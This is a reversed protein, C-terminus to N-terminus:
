RAAEDQQRSAELLLETVSATITREECGVQPDFRFRGQDSTVIAVAADFGLAKETEAHVPYGAEMWIRGQGDRSSLELLGSKRGMELLQLLADPPIEALDGQFAEGSQPMREAIMTKAASPEDDLMGVDGDVQCFIIISSGIEIKDGASLAASGEVAQGNLFTGNTSGLDRLRFSDGEYFVEAHRRSVDDKRLVLECSSHRGIAAPTGESLRLPLHPPCFLIYSRDM